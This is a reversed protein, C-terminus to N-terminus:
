GSTKRRPIAPNKNLRLHIAPNIQRIAPNDGFEDSSIKSFHGMIEKSKVELHAINTGAENLFLYFRNAGLGAQPTLFRICV